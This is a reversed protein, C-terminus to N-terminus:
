SSFFSFFGKQLLWLVFVWALPFTYGGAALILMVGSLIDMVSVINSAFTIGKVILYLGFWIGLATWHHFQLALLLVGSFFDLFGLFQVIM